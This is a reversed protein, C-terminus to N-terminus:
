NKLNAIIYLEHSSKLYERNLNFGGRNFLSVLEDFSWYRQKIYSETRFEFKDNEYVEVIEQSISTNTRKFYKFTKWKLKYIKNKHQYQTEFNFKSPDAINSDDINIIVKGDETLIKKFKAILKKADKKTLCIENFSNWFLIIINFKKSKFDVQFIDKNIVTTKNELGSDILNQKLKKFMGQSKEVGTVQFKQQTLPIVHRGTGCAIDLIKAPPPFLSNVLAIEQDTIEAPIQPLSVIDYIEATKDNPNLKTM